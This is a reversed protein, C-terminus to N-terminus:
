FICTASINGDFYILDIFDTKELQNILITTTNTQIIWNNNLIIDSTCITSSSISTGSPISISISISNTVVLDSIYTQRFTNAGTSGIQTIYNNNSQTIVGM